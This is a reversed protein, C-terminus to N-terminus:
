VPGAQRFLSLDEVLHVDAGCGVLAGELGEDGQQRIEHLEADGGHLEHRHGREGPRTVPAVVPDEGERGLRAVAAGIPEPAQHIGRVRDPEPDNEVHDEIVQPGLSVAEGFEGGVGVRAPGRGPSGREVEVTRCRGEHPRPRELRDFLPDAVVVQVFVEGAPGPVM